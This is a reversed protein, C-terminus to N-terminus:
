DLHPNTKPEVFSYDSSLPVAEKAESQTPQLVKLIKESSLRKWALLKASATRSM